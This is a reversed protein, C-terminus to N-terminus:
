KKRAIVYTRNKDLFRAMSVDPREVINFFEEIITLTSNLKEEPEIEPPHSEFILLGDATLLDAIKKFYAEISQETNGDYTSHNALSLVSDFMQEKPSYNEFSGHIQEINKHGLHAQVEKGTQVLYQNFEIGVGSSIQDTISLLIFGANSGIDLVSKGKLREKLKLEDVRAETDRYGSINIASFSQYFYGNGYDYSDYNSKVEQRIQELRSHLDWLKQDDSKLMTSYDNLENKASLRELSNQIFMSKFRNKWLTLASKKTYLRTM